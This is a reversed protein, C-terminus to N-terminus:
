FYKMASNSYFRYVVNHKHLFQLALTLESIWFKSSDESFTKFESIFSAFDGGSLYEYIFYNRNDDAFSHLLHLLFPHILSSFLTNELAVMDKRVVKMACIEGTSRNKVKYVKKDNRETQLTSVM